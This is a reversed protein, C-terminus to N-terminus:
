IGKLSDKKKELKQTPLTLSEYLTIVLREKKFSKPPIPNIKLFNFM